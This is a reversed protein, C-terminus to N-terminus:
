LAKHPPPLYLKNISCSPPEEVGATPKAAPISLIKNAHLASSAKVGLSSGGIGVVVVNKIESFDYNLCFEEIEQLMSINDPLNYYGVRDGSAEDFIAEYAEQIDQTSIDSEFFQDVLNM